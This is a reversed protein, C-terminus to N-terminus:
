REHEEGKKSNIATIIANAKNSLNFDREGIAFSAEGMKDFSEKKKCLDLIKNKLDQCDGAHFSYGNVGKEIGDLLNGSDSVILPKKYHLALQQVGSQTVELYPICVVDAANFYYAEEEDKIYRFDYRFSGNILSSKSLDLIDSEEYDRLSGAVLLFVDKREKQALSIANLLTMFGKSKRITGYLLFVIAGQPISLTERAENKEIYLANSSAGFACGVYHRPTLVKPYVKPFDNLAKKSQVFIGSAFIYIKSLFHLQFPKRDFPVLDHLLCYVPTRKSIRKIARWEIWPLSFWQLIVADYKTRALYSELEHISRIYKRAKSFPSGKYVNRFGIITEVNYKSLDVSYDDGLYVSTAETKSMEEALQLTDRAVTKAFQEVILLKM